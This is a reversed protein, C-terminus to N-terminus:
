RYAAQSAALREADVAVTERTNEPAIIAVIADTNELLHVQLKSPRGALETSAERLWSHELAGITGNFSLQFVAHADRRALAVGVEDLLPKALPTAVVLVEWGPQVGICTGVLLEAYR